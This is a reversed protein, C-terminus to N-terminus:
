EDLTRSRRNGLHRADFSISMTPLNCRGRLDPRVEWTLMNPNTNMRGSVDQDQAGRHYLSLRSGTACFRLHLQAELARSTETDSLERGSHDMESQM